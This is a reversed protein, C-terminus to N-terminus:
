LRIGVTLRSESFSSWTMLFVNAAGSNTLSRYRLKFCSGVPTRAERLRPRTKAESALGHKLRLGSASASTRTGSTHMPWTRRTSEAIYVINRPEQDEHNTFLIDCCDTQKATITNMFTFVPRPFSQRLSLQSPSNRNAISKYHDLDGRIKPSARRM